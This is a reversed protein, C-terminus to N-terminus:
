LRLLFPYVLIMICLCIGTVIAGILWKGRRVSRVVDSIGLAVGGVTTIRLAISSGPSVRGYFMFCFFTLIVLLASILGLNLNRSRPHLHLFILLAFPVIAGSWAIGLLRPLQQFPNAPAPDRIVATPQIPQNQLKLGATPPHENETRFIGAAQSMMPPMGFTSYSVTEHMTPFVYLWLSHGNTADICEVHGLNSGILLKGRARAIASIQGSGSLYPLEGVWHGALSRLEIETMLQQGNSRNTEREIFEFGDGLNYASESINGTKQSPLPFGFRESPISWQNSYVHGQYFTKQDLDFPSDEWRISDRLNANIPIIRVEKGQTDWVAMEELKFDSRKGVFSAQEVYINEGAFFVEPWLVGLPPSKRFLEKGSELDLMVTTPVDAPEYVAARHVLVKDGQAIVDLAGPLNFTWRVAGDILRRKEVLGNGDYSVLSNSLVNPDYHTETQWIVTLNTPDLLAIWGYQLLLIGPSIRILNGAFYHSKERRLVRGTNIDLITLSGDSQAFIVRDGDILLNSDVGVQSYMYAYSNQITVGLFVAIFFTFAWKM